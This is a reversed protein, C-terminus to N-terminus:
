GLSSVFYTANSIKDAIGVNTLQQLITAPKEDSAAFPVPTRRTVRSVLAIPLRMNGRIAHMMMLQMM